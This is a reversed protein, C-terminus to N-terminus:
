CSMAWTHSAGSDDAASNHDVEQGPALCITMRGGLDAQSYVQVHDKTGPGSIAHNAWSSDQDAIYSEWGDDDGSWDARQGQFDAATWACFEGSPCDAAGAPGAAALGGALLLLAATAVTLLRNKMM